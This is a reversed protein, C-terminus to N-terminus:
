PALSYEDMTQDPNDDKGRNFLSVLEDERIIRIGYHKAQELKRGSCDGAIFFSVRRDLMASVTAGRKCLETKLTHRDFKEFVGSVVVWKGDFLNDMM